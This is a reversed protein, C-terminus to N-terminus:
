CIMGKNVRLSQLIHEPLYRFTKTKTVGVSPMTVMIQILIWLSTRSKPLAFFPKVCEHVSFDVLVVAVHADMDWDRSRRQQSSNQKMDLEGSSLDEESGFLMVYLYSMMTQAM